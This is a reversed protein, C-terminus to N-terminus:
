FGLVRKRVECANIHEADLDQKALVAVCVVQDRADTVRDGNTDGVRRITFAQTFLVNNGASVEARVYLATTPVELMNLAPGSAVEFGNAIWKVTAPVDPLNIRLISDSIAISRLRPYTGKPNSADKVALFQGARFATEYEQSSFNAPLWVLIKGSDRIDPDVGSQGPGFHDNVAVGLIKQDKLLARDWNRLLDANKDTLFEGVRYKWLAYATYIEIGAYGTLQSYSDWEFPHALIPAGGNRNILDIAGQASTYHWTEAKEYYAPEWKAIYQTMFPSTVHEYGVEEGNATFVSINKLDRLYSPSFVQTPPWPREKLAYDLSAVGSYSMLSVVKYGADDYARLQAANTGVHDHHQAMAPVFTAWDVARYPNHYVFVSLKPNGVAPPPGETASEQCAALSLVCGLALGYTRRRAM